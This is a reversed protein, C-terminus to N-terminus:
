NSKSTSAPTTEREATPEVLFRSAVDPDPRMCRDTRGFWDYRRGAVLDYVADRLRAPVVRLAWLPRYIGGIHYALRLVAASKVYTAEDEILVITELDTPDVARDALLHEAVDSQLPAFMLVGEPDREILFQVSGTCLNCVGDFLVVPHEVAPDDM